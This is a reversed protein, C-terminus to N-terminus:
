GLTFLLGVGFLLGLFFATVVWRPWEREDERFLFLEPWYAHLMGCFAAGLAVLAKFIRVRAITGIIAGAIGFVLIRAGSIELVPGAMFRLAEIVVGLIGGVLFGAMACAAREFIVSEHDQEKGMIKM